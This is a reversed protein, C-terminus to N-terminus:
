CCFTFHIYNHLAKVDVEENQVGGSNLVSTCIYIYVSSITGKDTSIYM